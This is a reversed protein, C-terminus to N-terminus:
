PRDSRTQEAFQKLESIFEAPRENQPAHGCSDIVILRANPLDRALRKAFRLPVVRDDRGWIVLTPVDITQFRRAYRGLRGAHILRATKILAERVRKRPYYRSYRPEPLNVPLAGSAAALFTRVLPVNLALPGLIPMRLVEFYFPFEQPYAVADVLCLARVRPALVSRNRLVALLIITAGLSAGVLTLKKLDKMVIFDTLVDAFHELTYHFHRPAPSEGSGPLDIAYYSFVDDLGHCVSRWTSKDSALGHVFVAPDGTGGAAVALRGADFKRKMKPEGRPGDAVVCAALVTRM